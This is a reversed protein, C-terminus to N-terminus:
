PIQVPVLHGPSDESEELLGGHFEFNHRDAFVRVHRKRLFAGKGADDLTAWHAEITIGQPVPEFHDPDFPLARLHEIEAQKAEVVMDTGTIKKLADIDRELAHIATQHDDGPVLRYEVLELDGCLFMLAGETREELHDMRMHIKCALCRYYGGSPRDRKVQAYLPEGCQRCYAVRLLMHGGVREGRTQERSRLAARLQAAKTEGLLEATKSARLVRRVTDERWERGIMTLHGSDNLWRQIQGNSKGAIAMDAMTDLIDATGGSDPELGSTERNYRWGYPLRGGPWHGLEITADYNEKNREKGMEREFQSFTAIVTGMARGAPSDDDGLEPNNLIVFRKGHRKCWDRLKLYDAVNRCARDLKTVVLVDWAAVKAPDTLWPGLEKRNFASTGGSTSLDETIKAVTAGNSDAWGRIANRQVTPSM